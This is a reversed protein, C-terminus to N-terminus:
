QYVCRWPGDHRGATSEVCHDYSRFCGISAGYDNVAKWCAANAAGPALSLAVVILVKKM